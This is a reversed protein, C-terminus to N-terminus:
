NLRDNVQYKGRRVGKLEELVLQSLKRNFNAGERFHVIKLQVMIQDRRERRLNALEDGHGGETYARGAQSRKAAKISRSQGLNVKMKVETQCSMGSKIPILGSLLWSVQSLSGRGNFKELNVLVWDGM